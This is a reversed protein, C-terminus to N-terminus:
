FEDRENVQISFTNFEILLTILTCYFNRGKRPIFERHEETVGQGNQRQTIIERGEPTDRIIQSQVKQYDFNTGM